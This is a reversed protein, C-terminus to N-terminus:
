IWSTETLFNINFKFKEIHFVSTRSTTGAWGQIGSQAAFFESRFHPIRENIKNNNAILDIPSEKRDMKWCVIMIWHPAAQGIIMNTAGALSSANRTWLMISVWDALVLPFCQKIFVLVVSCLEFLGKLMGRRCHHGKWKFVGSPSSLHNMIHKLAYWLSLITCHFCIQIVLLMLGSSSERLQLTVHYSKGQDHWSSQGKSSCPSKCSRVYERCTLWQLAREFVTSAYRM